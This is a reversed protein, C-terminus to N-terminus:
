NLAALPTMRALDLSLLADMLASPSGKSDLTRPGLDLTSDQSASEPSEVRSKPGQAKSGGELAALLARARATVHDPLGAIEAVHIGYSRDAGGPRIRHLFVVRGGEEVAAANANRLGPLHEALGILEHYHTAFLTRAGIRDHVDEVVAQAI